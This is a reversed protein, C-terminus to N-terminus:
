IYLILDATNYEMLYPQLSTQNRNLFHFVRIYNLLLMVYHKIYM